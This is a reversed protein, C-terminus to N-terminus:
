TTLLPLIREPLRSHRPRTKTLRSASLSTVNWIAEFIPMRSAL